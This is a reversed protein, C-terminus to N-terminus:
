KLRGPKEVIFIGDEFVRRDRAKIRTAMEIRAATEGALEKNPSKVIITDGQIEVKVNKPIEAIRPTKEGLFNSIIIKNESIKVNIPFHMYVIKLKYVYDQIVGNIMENIRAAIMGVYAKIKRKDSSSSVILNNNEKEIKIIKNIEPNSFDRELSGNSGSVKINLGQIEVQVEQPIKVIEKM